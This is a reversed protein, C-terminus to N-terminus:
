RFMKLQEVEDVGEEEQLIVKRSIGFEGDAGIIVDGTLVDGSALTIRAEEPDVHMVEAGFRVEM